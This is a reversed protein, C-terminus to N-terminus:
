VSTRHPRPPAFRGVGLPTEALDRESFNSGYGHEDRVPEGLGAAKVRALEAPSLSALWAAYERRYEADRVAQKPRYNDPEHSM